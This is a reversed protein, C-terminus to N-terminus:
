IHAALALHQAGLVSACATGCVDNRAAGLSAVVACALVRRGIVTSRERRRVGVDAAFAADCSVDLAVSPTGAVTADAGKDWAGDLCAATEASRGATSGFTRRVVACRAGVRGRAGVLKSVRKEVARRDVVRVVAGVRRGGLLGVSTARRAVRQGGNCANGVDLTSIAVVCLAARRYARQPAFRAAGALRPVVAM